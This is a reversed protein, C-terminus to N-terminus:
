VELVHRQSPHVKAQFILHLHDVKLVREKLSRLSVESNNLIEDTFNSGYPHELFHWQKILCISEVDSAALSTFVQDRLSDEGKCCIRYLFSLKACLCCCRMSPWHLAMLPINNATFKTLKLVRKGLQTQFSELKSLLTKNLCWSEASYMLVPIVCSEILNRSSLNSKVSWSLCGTPRPCFHM